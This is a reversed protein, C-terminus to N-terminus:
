SGQIKRSSTRRSRRVAILDRWGSVIETRRVIIAAISLASAMWGSACVGRDASPVTAWEEGPTPDVSAGLRSSAMCSTWAIM